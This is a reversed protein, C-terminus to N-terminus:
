TCKRCYKASFIFVCMKREIFKKGSILANLIRFFCQLALSVMCSLIILRKEVAVITVRVRRLTVDYTCYM